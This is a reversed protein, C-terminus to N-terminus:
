ALLAGVLIATLTVVLLLLAEGSIIANSGIRLEIRRLRRM